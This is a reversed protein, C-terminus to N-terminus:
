RTEGAGPALFAQTLALWQEDNLLSPGPALLEGGDAAAVALQGEIFHALRHAEKDLWERAALGYPLRAYRVDPVEMRVLWGRRYPDRRVVNPDRRAAENVAVVRGDVPAAISAGKDGCTVHVAPDGARLDTGPAPLVVASLGPFLRQALDDMGVDVTNVGTARVWTHGPAYYLNPQYIVGDVRTVGTVKRRVLGALRVVALGALFLITLIGLVVLLLGFRVVLGAVFIGISGLLTLFTDM